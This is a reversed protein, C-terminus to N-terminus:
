KTGESHLIRVRLHVIVQCHGKNYLIFANVPLVSVLLKSMLIFERERIAVIGTTDLGQGRPKCYITHIYQFLQQSFHDLFVRFFFFSFDCSLWPSTDFCLGSDRVKSFSYTNLNAVLTMLLSCPHSDRQMLAKLLPGM